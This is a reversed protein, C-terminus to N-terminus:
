FYSNCLTPTKDFHYSTTTFYLSTVQVGEVSFICNPLQM